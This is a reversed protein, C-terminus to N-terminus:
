QTDDVGIDQIAHGLEDMDHNFERKFVTWNSTKTHDSESIRKKLDDNRKQLATVKTDYTEQIDKTAGSKEEKLATIGKQNESIKMEAERRYAQFDAASDIKAERLDQQAEAISKNAKPTRAAKKNEQGSASLTLLLMVGACMM